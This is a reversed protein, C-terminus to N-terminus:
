EPGWASVLHDPVRVRIETILRHVAVADLLSAPRRTLADFDRVMGEYPNIPTSSVLFEQMVTDTTIRSLGAGGFPDVSVFAAGRNGIVTMDLRRRGYESVCTLVRARMSAAVLEATTVTGPPQHLAQSRGSSGDWAHEVSWERGTVWRLLDLQDLVNASAGPSGTGDAAGSFASGLHLSCDILLPDGVRNKAIAERVRVFAANLRWRFPVFTEAGATYSREALREARDVRPPRHFIVPIGRDMAAGIVTEERDDPDDVAIVGVGDSFPRAGADTVSDSLWLRIAPVDVPVATVLDPLERLQSILEDRASELVAVRIPRAAWSSRSEMAPEVFVVM